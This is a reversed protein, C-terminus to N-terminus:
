MGRFVPVTQPWPAQTDGGTYQRHCGLRETKFSNSWGYGANLVGEENQNQAVLCDNVFESFNTSSDSAFLSILVSEVYCTRCLKLGLTHYDKPEYLASLRWRCVAM